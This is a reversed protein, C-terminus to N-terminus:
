ILKETQLACGALYQVQRGDDAHHRTGGARFDEAAAVLAVLDPSVEVLHGEEETAAM